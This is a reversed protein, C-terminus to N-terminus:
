SKVVEILRLALSNIIDYNVTSNDPQVQLPVPYTGLPMTGKHYRSDNLIDNGGVVTIMSTANFTTDTRHCIMPVYEPGHTNNPNFYDYPHYIRACQEGVPLATTLKSYTCNSFHFIGKNPIACAYMHLSPNSNPTHFQFVGNIAQKFDTINSTPKVITNSTTQHVYLTTKNYGGIDVCIAGNYPTFCFLCCNFGTWAPLSTAQAVRTTYRDAANNSAKYWPQTLTTITIDTGDLNKFNFGYTGAAFTESVGTNHTMMTIAEVGKERRGSLLFSKKLLVSGKYRFYSKGLPMGNDSNDSPGFYVKFTGDDNIGIFTRYDDTLYNDPYDEVNITIFDADTIYNVQSPTPTNDIPLNRIIDAYTDFKNGIDEIACKTKLINKIKRKIKIAKITDILTNIKYLSM